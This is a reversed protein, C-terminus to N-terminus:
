RCWVAIPQTQCIRATVRVDRFLAGHFPVLRHYVRTPCSICYRMVLNVGNTTDVRGLSHGIVRSGAKAAHASTDACHSHLRIRRFPTRQLFAELLSLGRWTWVVAMLTIGLPVTAAIRLLWV